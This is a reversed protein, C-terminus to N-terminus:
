SVLGGVKWPVMCKKGIWRKVLVATRKMPTCLNLYKPIYLDKEKPVYLDKEKGVFCFAIDLFM